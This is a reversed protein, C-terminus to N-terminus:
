TIDLATKVLGVTKDKIDQLNRQKQAMMAEISKLFTKYDEIDKSCAIVMEDYAMAAKDDLTSSM